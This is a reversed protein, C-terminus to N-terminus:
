LHKTRLLLVKDISYPNVPALCVFQQLQDVLRGALICVGISHEFRTGTASPYVYHVMGLQKVRRLRQFEPTDMFAVCLSPLSIEGYIVDRITRYDSAMELLM